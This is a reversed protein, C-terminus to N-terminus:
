GGYTPVNAFEEPTIGFLCRIIFIMIITYITIGIVYKIITRKNM